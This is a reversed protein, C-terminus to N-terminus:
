GGGVIRILEIKTNDEIKESKLDSYKGPTGNIDLILGDTSIDLKKVIDEVLINEDFEYKKDNIFIKV